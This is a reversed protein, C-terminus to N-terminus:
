KGNNKAPRNRLDGGRQVKTQDPTREGTGGYTFTTKVPVPTKLGHNKAM